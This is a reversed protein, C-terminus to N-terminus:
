VATAVFVATDLTFTGDAEFAFHQRVDASACQQLARIAQRHTEPTAMREVWSTFELRLRGPIVREVRFGAQQLVQQWASVSANRVHSPDRLLELSQLWTDCLRDEPAVVDSFFAMAGPKAVRRLSRLGPLLDRWHHASYRSAVLDFSADPCTLGEVPLCKTVLTDFGRRKVEQEVVALMQASLDCAVVRGVLPALCYTVHGGGCGADLVTAQPPLSQAIEALLRLDEGHAHVASTLYNHARPGFHRDVVANHATQTPTQM